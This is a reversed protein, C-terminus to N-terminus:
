GCPLYISLPHHRVAHYMRYTSSDHVLEEGEELPQGPVYVKDEVASSGSPEGDDDGGDGAGSGESDM